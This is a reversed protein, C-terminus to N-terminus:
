TLELRAAPVVKAGLRALSETRAFWATTARTTTQHPPVPLWSNQQRAIPVCTIERRTTSSGAPAFPAILGLITTPPALVMTPTTSETPVCRAPRPVPPPLMGGRRVFPALARRLQPRTLEWPARFAVLPAKTHPLRPEMTPLTNERRARLVHKTGTPTPMKTCTSEWGASPASTPLPLVPLGQPLMADRPVFTVPNTALLTLM